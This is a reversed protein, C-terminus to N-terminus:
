RIMSKYVVFMGSRTMTTPAPQLNLWIRRGATYSNSRQCDGVCHGTQASSVGDVESAAIRQKEVLVTLKVAARVCHRRSVDKNGSKM